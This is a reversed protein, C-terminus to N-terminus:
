LAKDGTVLRQPVDLEPGSEALRQHAHWCPQAKSEPDQAPSPASYRPPTLLASGSSYGHTQRLLVKAPTTHSRGRRSPGPVTRKGPGPLM